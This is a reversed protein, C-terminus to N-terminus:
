HLHSLSGDLIQNSTWYNAAEIYHIEDWSIYESPNSCSAGHVKPGNVVADDWCKLNSDKHHGCCFGLPNVFGHQKAESILSYKTKYINM